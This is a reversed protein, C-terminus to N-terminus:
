GWCGTRLFRSVIMGRVDGFFFDRPFHRPQATAYQLAPRRTAQRVCLPTSTVRTYCYITSSEVNTNWVQAFSRYRSVAFVLFENIESAFCVM